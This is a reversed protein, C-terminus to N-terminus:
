CQLLQTPFMRHLTSNPYWGMIHELYPLRIATSLSNLVSGNLRIPPTSTYLWIKKVETSAPTSHDAERGPRKVGPSLAGQVWQIPPQTSGLARLMVVGNECCGVV